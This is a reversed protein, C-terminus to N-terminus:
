PQGNSHSRINEEHEKGKRSIYFLMITIIIFDTRMKLIASFDFNNFLSVLLFTLRLTLIRSSHNNKLFLIRADISHLLRTAIYLGPIIALWGFQYYNFTIFDVPIGGGATLGVVSEYAGTNLLQLTVFGTKSLGFANLVFSPLVLMPWAIYDLGYRFGANAVLIRRNLFNTFPYTFYGLLTAILNKHSNNSIHGFSLYSFLNSLPELLFVCFVSVTLLSIVKARNALKSNLLFPVFFLLMPLRGQNYVLYFVAFVFSLYFRIKLFIGSKDIDMITKYLYPSALIISSLTILPLFASSIYDTVNKNLGRTKSGLALYNKVGGVAFFCTIISAVGIIFFIDAWMIIIRRCRNNVPKWDFNAASTYKWKKNKNRGFTFHYKSNTRYFTWGLLILLSCLFMCTAFQPMTNNALLRNFLTTRNAKDPFLLYLFPVVIYFLTMIMFFTDGCCFGKRKISKATKVIVIATILLSFVIICIDFLSEM